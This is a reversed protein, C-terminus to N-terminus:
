MKKYIEMARERTMINKWDPGLCNEWLPVLNLATTVMLEMDAESMDKTINRPLTINHKQMM